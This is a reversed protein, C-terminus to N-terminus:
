FFMILFSACTVTFSSKTILFLKLIKMTLCQPKFYPKYIATATLLVFDDIDESLRDYM